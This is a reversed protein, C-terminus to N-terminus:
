NDSVPSAAGSAGGSVKTIVPNDLPGTVAYETSFLKSLPDRMLMQAIFTSIGVIPNVIAVALSAGGANIDPLVVVRSNITSQPFDVTGTMLISAHDGLMRGDDTSLIGDEFRSPLAFSDFSFGDQVLDSFDLRLRKLLSQMSFLSLVAGGVGTDVQKLAGKSLELDVPGSLTAVEPSWPTGDWTLNALARGQGASLIQPYGLESFLVGGDTIELNASVHTRYKQGSERCEGSGTLTGGRNEVKLSDIVWLRSGDSLRNASTLDTTGLHMKGFTFDDAHFQLSPLPTTQSETFVYKITDTTREPLALKTFHVKLAGQGPTHWNVTGDMDAGSLRIRWDDPSTMEARVRLSSFDMGAVTLQDADLSVRELVTPPREGPVPRSQPAARQAVAMLKEIIPRWPDAKLHRGTIELAMGSRPLSTRKGLAFSGLAPLRSNEDPIQLVADFRNRGVNVTLYHGSQGGRTVPSLSFATYWSDAASKNLPAPLDSEVGELNSQVTVSTGRGPIINVTGVFSTTGKFHTLAETLLPQDAFYAINEPAAHGTLALSITGDERTSLNANVDHGWAKAALRQADAGHESFHITGSVQTLPPVPHAMAVDNEALTVSGSVLTDKAHTLPINLHLDLEGEGTATTGDFAGKVFHRVPSAAVYDFLRQLRDRAHGDVILRADSSSLQAIVARTNTVAVSKTAASEAEVTMSNGEFTIRGNIKELLPWAAVEDPLAGERRLYEPVYNVVADSVQGTIFFRGSDGPRDWPFKTFDGRIEYRGNAAQGGPLGAQLWRIVSSPIVTPMYRHVRNAQARFITGQLDATGAPGINRWTGFLDAEADANKVHVNDFTVTLPDVRGDAAETALRWSITGTLEDAKLHPDDFVGQLTLTTRRSDLRLRGEAQNVSVEGTLRSFGFGKAQPDPKEGRLGSLGTRISLNEFHTSVEWAEPSALPGTWAITTNRLTGRPQRLIIREVWERSIPLRPLTQMLPEVELRSITLLAKKMHLRDPTLELTATLDSPGFRHGFSNDYSLSEAKLQLSEGANHLTLRTQAQKMELPELNEALQLTAQHVGLDATVSEIAGNKFAGWAQMQGQAQVFFHEWATGRFLAAFDFHVLKAYCEGSWTRWDSSPKFLSTSFRARLDVPNDSDSSQVAQLGFSWDTTNKEFTANIDKFLLEKPEGYTLDVLRLRSDEIDLRGQHLLWAIVANEHTSEGRAANTEFSFGGVEWTERSTRRVSLDAGSIVLHRFAPTGFVSRWYISASLRKLELVDRTSYRPDIKTFRVGTLELRPWFSDWSPRIADITVESQTADELVRAIDDKFVEIQPLVVWRTLLILGGFLFYFLTLSWFAAITYPRIRPHRLFARVRLPLFHLRQSM